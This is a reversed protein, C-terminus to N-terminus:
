AAISASTARSWPGVDGKANMWRGFYTAIKGRDAATFESVCRGRTVMTLFESGEPRSMAGDAITRYLMLGVAERPKGRRSTSEADGVRLTHSRQDMGALFIAPTSEPTAIPTGGGGAAPAHLGLGIKLTSSIRDPSAARILAAFRRVTRLAARKAANKAAVAPRTRSQPSSAVVFAAHWATVAASVEAADADTLAYKAPAAAVLAAFNALWADLESERLPLYTSPM